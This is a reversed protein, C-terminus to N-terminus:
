ETHKQKKRDTKLNKQITKTKEGLHQSTKCM